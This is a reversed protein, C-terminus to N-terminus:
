FRRTIGSRRVVPKLTFAYQCWCRCNEGSKKAFGSKSLYLLSFSVAAFRLLSTCVDVVVHLSDSPIWGM